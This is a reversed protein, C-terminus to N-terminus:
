HYLRTWQAARVYTNDLTVQGNDTVKVFVSEKMGVLSGGDAALAFIWRWPRAGAAVIRASKLNLSPRYFDPSNAQAQAVIVASGEVTAKLSMRQGSGLIAFGRGDPFITVRDINKDGKWTGAVLELSPSDSMASGQALASGSAPAERTEGGEGAFLSRTLRRSALILDNVSSFSDAVSRKEGTSAKTVDMKFVLLAGVKEAQASLIFDAVLPQLEKNQGLQIATESEKLALEQGGADTIRFAKLEMIYSTVLNQLAASENQALGSGEFDAIRLVKSAEQAQAIWPFALLLAVLTSALPKVRRM